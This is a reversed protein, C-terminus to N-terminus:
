KSGIVELVELRYECGSWGKCSGRDACCLCFTRNGGKYQWDVKGLDKGYDNILLGKLGIVKRYNYNDENFINKDRFRKQLAKVREPHTERWERSQKIIKDKHALYYKRMYEKYYKRM